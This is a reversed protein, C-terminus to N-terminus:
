EKKSIRNKSTNKKPRKKSILKFIQSANFILKRFKDKINLM